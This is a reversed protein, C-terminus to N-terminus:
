FAKFGPSEKWIELVAGAEKQLLQEAPLARQHLDNRVADRLGDLDIGLPECDELTSAYYLKRIRAWHMASVCLECPECTTYLDCDSLDWSGLRRGADRIAEVEGHSTPDHNAVVHNVGEGVVVGDKVVVAGFPAVGPESLARRSLEIARRMHDEPSSM